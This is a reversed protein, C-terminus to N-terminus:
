LRLNTKGFGGPGYIVAVPPVAQRAVTLARTLAALQRDRGVFTATAAPLQRPVPHDQAVAPEPAAQAGDCFEDREAGTLAFADALLRVTAPRPTEIRGSEINRINRSSLGTAHALDDQTLGLRQRHIRVQAGFM